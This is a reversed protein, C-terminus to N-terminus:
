TPQPPHAAVRLAAFSKGTAYGWSVLLAATRDCGNVGTAAFTIRDGPRLGGADVVDAVRDARKRYLPFATHPVPPPSGRHHKEPCWARWRGRRVRRQMNEAWDVVDLHWPNVCGPNDCEHDLPLNHPIIEARFFEYAWRHARVHRSGNWFQGYGLHNRNGTWEWCDLPDVNSVKAFFRQEPPTRRRM